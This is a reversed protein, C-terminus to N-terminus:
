ACRLPKTYSQLIEIALESSISCDQMLGDIQNRKHTIYMYGTNYPIM